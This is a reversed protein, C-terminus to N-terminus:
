LFQQYSRSGPCNHRVTVNVSAKQEGTCLCVGAIDVLCDRGDIDIELNMGADAGALAVFCARFEQSDSLCIREPICDKGIIYVKDM